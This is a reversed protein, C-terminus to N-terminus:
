VFYFKRKSLTLFIIRDYDPHLTQQKYKAGAVLRAISLTALDSCKQLWSILTTLFVIFVFPLYSSFCLANNFPQSWFHPLRAVRAISRASRRTKENVANDYVDCGRINM